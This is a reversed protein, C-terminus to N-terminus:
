REHRIFQAAKAHLDAVVQLLADAAGVDDVHESDLHFAHGAVEERGELFVLVQVAEIVVLKGIRLGIGQDKMGPRHVDIDFDGARHEVVRAALDDVLHGVPEGHAHRDEVEEASGLTMGLSSIRLDVTTSGDCPNCACISTRASSPQMASSLLRMSASGSMITISASPSTRAGPKMSM